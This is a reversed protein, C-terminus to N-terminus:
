RARKTVALFTLRQNFLINYSQVIKNWTLWVLLKSEPMLKTKDSVLLM